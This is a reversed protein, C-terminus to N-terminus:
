TLIFIHFFIVLGEYAGNAARDHGLQANARAIM